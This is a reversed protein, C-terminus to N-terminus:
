HAQKWSTSYQVHGGGRPKTVYLVDPTNCDALGHYRSM